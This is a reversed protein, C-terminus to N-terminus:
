KTLPVRESLVPPFYTARDRGTRTRRREDDPREQKNGKAVLDEDDGQDSADDEDDDEADLGRRARELIRDREKQYALQEKEIRVRERRNYEDVAYQFRSQNLGLVNVMVGGISEMVQLCRNCAPYVFKATKRLTATPVWDLNVDYYDGDGANSPPLPAGEEVSSM